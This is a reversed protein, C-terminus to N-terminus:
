ARSPIVRKRADINPKGEKQTQIHRTRNRHTHSLLLLPLFPGYLLLSVVVLLVLPEGPGHELACPSAHVSARHAPTIKRKQVPLCDSCRCGFALSPPFWAGRLVEEEKRKKNSESLSLSPFPSLPRNNM